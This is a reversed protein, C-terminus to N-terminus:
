FSKKFHVLYEINGDGGTIPSEIFEKYIFGAGKAYEIVKNLAFIRMNKDKVIGGKGINSEVTYNSHKPLYIVDNKKTRLKKNEFNFCCEGDVYLVLGHTPRNIHIPTGGGVPVACVVSIKTINLDCDFFDKM